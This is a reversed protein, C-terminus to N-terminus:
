ACHRSAAGIVAANLGASRRHRDPTTCCREALWDAEAFIWWLPYSVVEDTPLVPGASGLCPGRENHCAYDVRRHTTSSTYGAVAARVRHGGLSDTLGATAPLGKAAGPPRSLLQVGTIKIALRAAPDGSHTACCIRTSIKPSGPPTVGDWVAQGIRQRNLMHSDAPPRKTAPLRRGRGALASVCEIAGAVSHLLDATPVIPV